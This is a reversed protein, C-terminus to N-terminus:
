NPKAISSYSIFSLKDLNNESFWFNLISVKPTIFVGCIWSRFGISAWLKPLSLSVQNGGSATTIAHAMLGFTYSRWTKQQQCGLQHELASNSLLSMKILKRLNNQCALFVKRLSFHVACVRTPHKHHIFSFNSFIRWIHSQDSFEIYGCILIIQNPCSTTWWRWWSWFCWRSWWPWKHPCSITSIDCFRVTQPPSMSFILPILISISSRYNQRVLFFISFNILLLLLYCHWM